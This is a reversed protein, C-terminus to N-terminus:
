TVIRHRHFHLLFHHKEEVFVGLGVYEGILRAEIILERLSDKVLSSLLWHDCVLDCLIVVRHHSQCHLLMWIPFQCLILHSIPLDFLNPFAVVLQFVHVFLHKLKVVAIRRPLVLRLRQHRLHLLCHSAEHLRRLLTILFSLTHALLHRLGFIQPSAFPCLRRNARVSVPFCHRSDCHFSVVIM